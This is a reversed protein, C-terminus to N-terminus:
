RVSEVWKKLTPAKEANPAWIGDKDPKGHEWFGRADDEGNGSALVAFNTDGGSKWDLYSLQEWENPDLDGEYQKLIVFGTDDLIDLKRHAMAFRRKREPDPATYGSASPNGSLLRSCDEQLWPAISQTWYQKHIGCE